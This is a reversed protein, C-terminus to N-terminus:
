GPNALEPFMVTLDRSQALQGFLHHQYISSMLFGFPLTVILGIGLALAGTLSAVVSILLSMLGAIVSALLCQVWNRAVWALVNRFKFADALEMRQALAIAIAPGLIWGAVTPLLAVLSRGFGIAGLSYSFATGFSDLSDTAPLAEQNNGVLVVVYVVVFPLLWVLYAVFMFFGNRLDTQWQDWEPLPHEQHTRVNRLLRLVYGGVIFFGVIGVLVVSLVTSVLVYLTGTMLKNRIRPDTSRFVVQFPLGYQMIMGGQVRGAIPALIVEATHHIRKVGVLSVKYAM